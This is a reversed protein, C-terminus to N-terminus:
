GIPRISGRPKRSPKLARQFAVTIKPVSCADRSLLSRVLAMQVLLLLELWM